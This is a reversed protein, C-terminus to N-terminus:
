EVPDFEFMDIDGHEELAEAACKDMFYIMLAEETIILFNRAERFSHMPETTPEGRTDFMPSGEIKVKEKCGLFLGM